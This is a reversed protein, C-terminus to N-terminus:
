MCGWLARIPWGGTTTSSEAFSRGRWYPADLRWCIARHAASSCSTHLSQLLARNCCRPRHSESAQRLISPVPRMTEAPNELGDLGRIIKL